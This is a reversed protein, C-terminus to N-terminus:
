ITHKLEPMLLADLIGFASYFLAALILSIRIHPLSTRRYEQQFPKELNSSDGSFKLTLWNIKM